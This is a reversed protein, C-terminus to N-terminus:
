IFIFLKYYTYCYVFVSFATFLNIFYKYFYASTTIFIFIIDCIQWCLLKKSEPEGDFTMIKM